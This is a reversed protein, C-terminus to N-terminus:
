ASGEARCVLAIARDPDGSIQDMCFALNEEVDVQWSGDRLRKWNGFAHHSIRGCLVARWSADSLVMRIM